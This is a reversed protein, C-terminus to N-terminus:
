RRRRSRRSDRRRGRGEGRKRRRRDIRRLGRRRRKPRRETLLASSRAFGRRRFRSRKSSRLNRASTSAATAAAHPAIRPIKEPIPASSSEAATTPPPAPAPQRIRGANATAHSPIPVSAPSRNSSRPHRTLLPLQNQKARPLTTSTIGPKAAFPHLNQEVDANKKKSRNRRTWQLILLLSSFSYVTALHSQAELAIESMKVVHLFSIAMHVRRRPAKVLKLCHKYYSMFM